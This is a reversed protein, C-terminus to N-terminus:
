DLQNIFEDVKNLLLLMNLKLIWSKAGTMIHKYMAIMFIRTGLDYGDGRELMTGISLGDGVFRLAIIM